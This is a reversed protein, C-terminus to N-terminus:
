RGAAAALEINKQISEKFSDLGENWQTPNNGPYALGWEAPTFEEAARLAREFADLAEGKKGVNLLALGYMNLLWPHDPNQALGEELTPIMDEYRGQSFYVWSLDVHAWPGTPDRKIYEIFGEEARQWDANDGSVQAEYASALGVMYYVNPVSDGFYEIQKQFKYRASIFHGELFDIRGLQYWALENGRPDQELAYTYATRAKALDYPGRADGGVNFYYQGLLFPGTTKALSEGPHQYLYLLAVMLSIAGIGALVPVAYSFAKM